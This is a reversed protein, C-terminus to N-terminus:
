HHRTHSRNGHKSISRLMPIPVAPAKAPRPKPAAWLDPFTRKALQELLSQAPRHILMPLDGSVTKYEGAGAAEYLSLLADIVFVPTGKAAMASRLAEPPCPKVQIEKHLGKSLAAAIMRGDLAEPGTLEYIRNEHGTGLLVEVTAAALDAHSVYAVKGEMGPMSFVGTDRAQELFMDLNAFYQNNRLITYALGSARLCKEADVQAGAWIFRSGPVSHTFSTYVIRKVGAEKACAIAARHQRIRDENSGMGSILLLTDVGAFAVKMTAPDDFDARLIQGRLASVKNPDRATFRLTIEPNQRELLLQSVAHGLRGNAATIAITRKM